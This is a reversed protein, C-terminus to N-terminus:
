LSDIPIQKVCNGAYEVADRNGCKVIVKCSGACYGGKGSCNGVQNSITITNGADICNYMMEEFWEQSVFTKCQCENKKPKAQFQSMAKQLRADKM